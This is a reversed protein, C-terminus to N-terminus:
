YLYLAVVEDMVNFHVNLASAGQVILAEVKEDPNGEFPVIDIRNVLDHAFNILSQGAKNIGVAIIKTEKSEGDALTKMYDALASRTQDSLKHFDDVVVIGVAGLEPLAEIYEIDSPKRASFKTVKGAMKLRELATEVATTKGIGSPGEIVLGRGPTRLNLILAPFEKPEVLTYTPVGGTKFVDELLPAPM